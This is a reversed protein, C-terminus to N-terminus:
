EPDKGCAPGGAEEGGGAAERRWMVFLFGGLGALTLLGAVRVSGLALAGYKGTAPDYHYCFLLLQDTVTGVEGNSAEVLGLRLDRANFEVGHFYRAITGDPAAVVIAAAHAYQDLKPDYAYRFGIAGTLARIAEEGGTLYHWGGASEPRAYREVARTKKAAALAPGEGPDFSVTVVDFDAGVDLRLTSLSGLLGQEVLSCLMPCEYYAPVIIVPRRARFFDGLRVENGSADRFPLDLPLREGIKQDVGVDRLLVPRADHAPEGSTKAFGAPALLFSLAAAVPLARRVLGRLGARSSGPHRVGSRAPGRRLGRAAPGEATEGVLRAVAKEGAALTSANRPGTASRLERHAPRTM